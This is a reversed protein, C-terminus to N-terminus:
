PLLSPPAAVSRPLDLGGRASGPSRPPRPVSRSEVGGADQENVINLEIAHRAHRDIVDNIATEVLHEITIRAHTTINLLALRQASTLTVHLDYM